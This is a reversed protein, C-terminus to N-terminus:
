APRRLWWSPAGGPIDFPVADTFGRGAYFAKNGPTSTELWCDWGAADAAELGPRLVATALGRGHLDPHTALVGLYWYPQPPAVATVAADYAELRSWIDEGVEARFAAWRAAHDDDVAVDLSKRDWMAVAGCDDTVWATRRSIRAVLLTRAFASMASPNDRGIIFSWAPDTAFAEAVMRAVADVDAPTALRVAPHAPDM